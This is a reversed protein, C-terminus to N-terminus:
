ANGKTLLNPYHIADQFGPGAALRIGHKYVAPKGKLPRGNDDLWALTICGGDETRIELLHGNTLVEVVKKGRLRRTIDSM